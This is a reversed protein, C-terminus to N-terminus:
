WRELHTVEQVPARKVPGFKGQPYGIPLMAVIGYDSAIGFEDHLEHEYLQHLTTLTAGLGLARCALLINQVCPYVSGYSPPALGVRHEEAVAFPWDRKGCVFLLVPAEHMHDALYYAARMTRAHASNDDPLPRWDGFNERWVRLYNQQVFRKADPETLVLFSWPQTNQGNAAKTGAELVQWILDMPVPDPKLRRMSRTSNIVEFLGPDKM